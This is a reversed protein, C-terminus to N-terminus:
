WASAQPDEVNGAAPAINGYADPSESSLLANGDVDHAQVSAWCCTFLGEM